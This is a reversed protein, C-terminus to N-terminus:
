QDRFVTCDKIVSMPIFKINDLLFKEALLIIDRKMKKQDGKTTELWLTRETLLHQLIKACNAPLSIDYIRDIELTAKNRAAFIYRPYELDGMAHFQFAADIGYGKRKKGTKTLAGEVRTAKQEILINNSKADEGNRAFNVNYDTDYQSVIEYLFASSIADTDLIDIGVQQLTSNRIAVIQKSAAIIIELKDKSLYKSKSKKKDAAM